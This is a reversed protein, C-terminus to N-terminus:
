DQKILKQAKIRLAIQSILTLAEDHPLTITILSESKPLDGRSACHIVVDDVTERERPYPDAVYVHAEHEKGKGEEGRMVTAM